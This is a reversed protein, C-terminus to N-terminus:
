PLRLRYYRTPGAPTNTDTFGYRPTASGLPLWDTLNTSYEVTYAGLPSGELAFTVNTGGLGAVNTLALWPSNTAYNGYVADLEAQSVFGDGNSDGLPFITPVYFTQGPSVTLGASNSAVARYHYTVGAVLNSVAVTSLQSAFGAAFANSSSTGPYTANLGFQFWSAGALGNPQVNVSLALTRAGTAPNTGTIQAAPGSLTPASTVIVTRTNTRSNGAADTVTYAIVNTGVISTNVVGSVTIGPTLDGQCLDNATAGPNVFAVGVPWYLPNAGLLTIVPATRDVVVVPRSAIAYHGLANTVAHTLVYTGPTNVNVNDSTGVTLNLNTVTAPFGEPGVGAPLGSAFFVGDARLALSHGFGTAIKVINTAAPPFTYRGGSSEGWGILTGDRRLALSHQGAASIAVVNTAGAPINCQGSDNRGWAVITGDARLALSHYSGASVAIVNIAEPPVDSQGYSVFAEPVTAGWAIVTGDARLALNHYEGADVATVNTATAPVTVQGRINNGWALVSGDAKSVVSHELGGAISRVDTANGPVGIQGNNSRGWAAVTGNSRLALSHYSGAAITIVDTLGGPVNLQQFGNDGWAAVSGDLRLALIHSSGGSFATPAASAKEVPPVFAVHCENTLTIPPTLTLAPAWFFIDQGFSLGAANSAVARVHYPAGATLSALLETVNSANLGSPLTTGPTAQGYNTTHGWQFWARATQSGPIVSSKFTANTGSVGTPALTIVTPRAETSEVSGIDPAPGVVRAFGRQDTPFATPGAADYAPSGILPPMTQTPGGYNGLAGLLPDGSTLNNGLLILTGSDALNPDPASGSNNGALITNHLTLTGLNRIGGTGFNGENGAITSHNVTLTAGSANYIAAGANAVNGALTCQNLTLTGANYIGGGAGPRYSGEANSGNNAITCRDLTLTGANYIGAGQDNDFGNRVELSRLVVTRGAAVELVRGNGLIWIGGPLASADITLNQNVVLTSDLQISQGSLGAAFTITANNAAAAVAARLSGAGADATTSVVQARALPATLLVAMTFLLRFQNKM